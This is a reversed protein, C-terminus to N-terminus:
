NVLGEKIAFYIIEANNKMSLKKLIRARYTSVTKVSLDLNDAINKVTKGSAISRMVQFERDSLIEQLADDKADKVTNALRETLITSVYTGGKAVKELADMADAKSTRKNLYGSAGAKLARVGFQTEPLQSFVLVMVGPNSIKIKRILELGDCDPLGIDLLVVDVENATIRSLIESCQSVESSVTFEEFHALISKLGERYIPCGDAILVKKVMISGDILLNSLKWALSKLEFLITIVIAIVPGVERKRGKKLAANGTNRTECYAYYCCVGFGGRCFM